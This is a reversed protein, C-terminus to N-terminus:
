EVIDGMSIQKLKSDNFIYATEFSLEDDKVIITDRKLNTVNLLKLFDAKTMGISIKKNLLVKDNKIEGDRLYFGNNNYLILKNIGDTFDYLDYSNGETDRQKEIKLVVPNLFLSKVKAADAKHVEFALANYSFENNIITSDDTLVSPSKTVTEKQQHKTTDSQHQKETKNGVGECGIIVLTIIFFPLKPIRMKILAIVQLSM